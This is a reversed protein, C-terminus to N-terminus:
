WSIVVKGQGGNAGQQNVLVQVGPAFYSSGGGASCHAGGGGGYYGGGGGGGCASCAAGTGGKGLVGSTGKCSASGCDGGAGGGNQSGGRGICTNCYGGGSPNADQGTSGGGKGALGGYGRGGGGGAVIVRNALGNGGQRVDSAGGGEGNTYGSSNVTAGGGNFGGSKVASNCQGQGGAYVYLTEGSTVPVTGQARGGDGGESCGGKAGYTDVTVHTCGSPVVFTQESGTYNFTQSGPVCPSVCEGALCVNDGGCSLNDALPLHTCGSQPDCDDATCPNSDDCDLAPGGVCSKQACNDNITCADGDDCALDNASNICGIEPDCSDDSCLNEDDCDVAGSGVCQGDACVDFPTCLNADNCPAVNNTFLCGAVDDCFDDTCGNADNCVLPEGPVCAGLACTDGVTCVTGDDCPLVNNIHVCGMEIDCSDDTCPNADDCDVFATIVCAGAQCHDGTTCMSGDDCPGNNPVFQCGANADCSDDTCDNGDNCPLSGGGTCDGLHCHDGTTCLDGDDCPASNLSHTCGADPVCADNTCINNDDCNIAQGFGCLGDACKEGVTCKNGDDCAGSTPIYLCGQQANCSDTTCPNLDNCVLAQGLVCGSDPACSELGNCVDGDDCVLLQGPKCGTLPACTEQGNCLNGDDCELPAGGLCAGNDCHDATTCADGDNCPAQNGTNLCGTVADCSDDTCPNGDNCNVAIGGSCNGMNCASQVTCSDGDDCLLGQNAAVLSCAGSDPDCSPTLCIAGVGTPGPCVVVSEPAVRCQYPFTTQDCFLTGNCLDQDELPTCDADAQCDCSVPTGVCAGGQCQDAVTCPDDDDCGGAMPVFECGGTDTCLNETCPNKDDCAVPEGVCAGQVCHDAVTCPNADNCDGAELVVNSCGQNGECKDKTCANGDDCLAIYEGEVLDPEDLEMDCDNDIGDCVEAAPVTADCASLGGAGCIRKGFCTGFENEVQCDTSLGLAVSLSTCPCQGADNVCQKLAAGDVSLIEQCTFGWPCDDNAGCAGGCFNGEPGYDLCADQAGGISQCDANASCPRCLNAFNSVCIYVVDPDTGAVQQCKWGPPCEEQCGQSCVSEGLHQVCWGSQCDGNDDCGDLFCGEGPQCAQGKLDEAMDFWDFHLVDQDTVAETATVDAPAAIDVAGDAVASDAADPEGQEIGTNGQSCAFLSLLFTGLLLGNKM